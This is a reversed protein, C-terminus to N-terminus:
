QLGRGRGGFLTAESTIKTVNHYIFFLKTNMPKGQQVYTELTIFDKHCKRGGGGGGLSCLNM